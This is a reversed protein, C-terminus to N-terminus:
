FTRDKVIARVLAEVRQGAEVVEPDPDNGFWGRRGESIVVVLHTLADELRTLREDSNVSLDERVRL